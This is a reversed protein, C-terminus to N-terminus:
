DRSSSGLGRETGLECFEYEVYEPSYPYCLPRRNFSRNPVVGRSM